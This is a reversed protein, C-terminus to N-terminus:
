LAERTIIQFERGRKQCTKPGRIQLRQVRSTHSLLRSEAYYRPGTYLGLRWGRVKHRQFAHFAATRPPSYESFNILSPVMRVYSILSVPNSLPWALLNRWLAISFLFVTATRKLTEMSKILSQVCLSSMSRIFVSTMFLLRSQRTYHGILVRSWKFTILASSVTSLAHVSGFWIAMLEHVVRKASWPNQKPSIEMIWQICDAKFPRPWRSVRPWSSM